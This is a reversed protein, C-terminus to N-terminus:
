EDMVERWTKRVIVPPATPENRRLVYSPETMPSTRRNVADYAVFDEYDYQWDAGFALKHIRIYICERSPANFDGENYRMISNETPRWVGTWYTYGGEFVGLGDYQYREDTIFKAWNVLTPDSTFDINKYWGFDWLNMCNTVEEGPIQGMSEYAYEDALKSFGHGGAEHLILGRFTAEDSSTPFYAVSVGNGYDGESPYYMWCTGAYYDRNMMVVLLAEDLRDSTIAKLAYNFVTQDDGGVSTGGGFWTSLATRSGEEYVENPSVVNVMYVNFYDRFSKYPEQSFFQEMTNVMVSRYTGDAILRDSYADGMLVIDIGNGVTASQLLEVTGDASYDTSTYVDPYFESLDGYDYGELYGQYPEWYSSSMYADLSEEPVYITLNDFETPISEASSHYVSPPIPARLYVSELKPSGKFPNWGLNKMRASITVTKLNPSYNFLYGYSDVSIVNDTVVVSELNQKMAFAQDGLFEIDDPVTYEVIGKDAVYFLRNDFVYSRGDGLVNPGNLREINYSGEFVHASAITTVSGPITLETLEEAYYFSYNELGMIGDPITYSQLGAGSAFAVLWRQGLNYYNEVYMCMGDNSVYRSPGYFRKLEKNIAFAYLDVEQLSEPLYVEELQMRSFSEFGVSLVGEPITIKKLTNDSSFALEGISTIGDPITYEEFEGPIFCILANDIVICHGDESINYGTFSKISSSRVSTNWMDFVKLSKPVHFELLEFAGCFSNIYQISNPLYLGIILDNELNQFSPDNIETVPADFKVVWKGGTYTHSVINADFESGTFDIKNKNVTVYWIENDPVADPDIEIEEQCGLQVIEYVISLQGGVARVEVLATRREEATNPDVWLTVSYRQMARTDPIVKIWDQADEQIIVETEINAEFELTVEGGETRVLKVRGDLQILGSEEFTLEATPKVSSRNIVLNNSTKIMAKGDTTVIILTFEEYTGPPLVMYFPTIETNSLTVGEGCDLIVSPYAYQDMVLEPASLYGMDVKARGAVMISNGAADRASFSISQITEEGLLNLKLLGCLNKYRLTTSSSVAVMPSAAPGFSLPTYKQVHPMEFFLIGDSMYVEESYPYISYYTSGKLSTGGFDAYATEETGEYVYKGFADATGVWITDGPTWLVPHSETESDGNEMVTKTGGSETVAHFFIVSSEELASLDEEKSCGPLMAFSLLLVSILIIINGLKKM